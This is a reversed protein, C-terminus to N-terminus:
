KQTIFNRLEELNAPKAATGFWQGPSTAGASESWYFTYKPEITQVQGEFAEAIKKASSVARM